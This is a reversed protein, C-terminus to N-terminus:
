GKAWSNKALTETQFIKPRRAARPETIFTRRNRDQDLKSYRIRLAIQFGFGDLDFFGVVLLQAGSQDADVDQVVGALFGDKAQAYDLLQPLVAIPQARAGQVGQEM